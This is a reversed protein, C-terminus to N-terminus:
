SVVLEMPGCACTTSYSIYGHSSDFTITKGYHSNWGVPPWQTNAIGTRDMCALIELRKYLAKAMIPM